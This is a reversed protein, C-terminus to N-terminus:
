LLQKSSAPPTDVSVVSLALQWLSILSSWFLPQQSLVDSLLATEERYRFVIGLGRLFIQLKRLNMHLPYTSNLPLSHKLGLGFKKDKREKRSTWFLLGQKSFTKALAQKLKLYRPLVALLWKDQQLIKMEQFQQFLSARILIHEQDEM